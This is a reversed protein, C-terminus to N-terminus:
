PIIWGALRRGSHQERGQDAQGQADREGRGQGRRRGGHRGATRTTAASFKQPLM